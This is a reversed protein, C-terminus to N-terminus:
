EGDDTPSTEATEAAESNIPAEEEAGVQEDAASNAAEPEEVASNVTEREEEHKKREAQAAKASKTLPFIAWDNIFLLDLVILITGIVIFFDAFNCYVMNGFMNLGFFDRVSRFALRDVLNGIAGAAIIVLSTKTFKFREPIFLFATIIISLLIFTFTILIPQGIEPNENLFSFACGPNNPISGDIEIFRPIIVWLWNDKFQKTLLDVAILALCVVILIISTKGFHVKFKGKLM